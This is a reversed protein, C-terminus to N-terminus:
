VLWLCVRQMELCCIFRICSVYCQQCSFKKLEENLDYVFEIVIVELVVICEKLVVIEVDKVDFKIIELVVLQYKFLNVSEGLFWVSLQWCYKVDFYYCILSFVFLVFVFVVIYFLIM